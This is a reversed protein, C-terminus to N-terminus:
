HRVCLGKLEPSTYLSGAAQIRQQVAPDSSWIDIHSDDDTLTLFQSRVPSEVRISWDFPDLHLDYTRGVVIPACDQSCCVGSDSSALRSSLIFFRSRTSNGCFIVFHSSSLTSDIRVVTFTRSHNSQCSAVRTPDIVLILLFSLIIMRM